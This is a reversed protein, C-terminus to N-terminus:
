ERVFMGSKLAEQIESFTKNKTEPICLLIFVSFFLCNASYLWFTTASGVVSILGEFYRALLFMSLTSFFMCICIGIMRMSTDLLESFLLLYVSGIGSNFCLVVIGLSVLPLYNLIGFISNANTEMVKFYVGLGMMGIAMGISTFVLIPKRGFIDIVLTSCLSGLLQLVGVIVSALAPQVSTKTSELVTQLYYSVTNYGMLQTGLGLIIGLITGKIFLKNQLLVGTNTEINGKGYENMEMLALTESDRFYKLVNFAETNRGKSYLYHPSEPLLLIPMFTLVVITTFTLNFVFYSVYPGLSLSILMGLSSLIQSITGLSGRIEKSAIEASYPAVSNLFLVDSIGNLIRGTIFWWYSTAFIYIFGSLIRPLYAFVIWQKKGFRNVIVGMLVTTFVSALFSVSVIWSIQSDDLSTHVPSQNPNRLKVLVPSPWTLSM